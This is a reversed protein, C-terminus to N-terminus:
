KLSSALKLSEGMSLIRVVSGCAAKMALELQCDANDRAPGDLQLELPSPILVLRSM